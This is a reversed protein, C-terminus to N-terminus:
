VLRKQTLHLRKVIDAKVCMCVGALYQVSLTKCVYVAATVVVSTMEKASIEM